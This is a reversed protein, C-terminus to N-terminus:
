HLLSIYLRKYNELGVPLDYEKIVRKVAQQGLKMRLDPSELLRSIAKLLAPADGKSILLGEQGHRIMDPIGAIRSAIVPLGAAMAELIAMPMGEANTPLVFIASSALRELKEGGSVWGEVLCYRRYGEPIFNHIFEQPVAVLRFRVHPFKEALAPVISLLLPLGKRVNDSGGLFLIELEPPNKSRKPVKRIAAQIEEVDVFNPLYKLHIGKGRIERLFAIDDLCIVIFSSAWGIIKLMLRQLLPPSDDYFFRFSFHMQLLCPIRFIRCVLTYVATEWFVWYPATHIHVLNPRHQLLFIPFQLLHKCTIVVAILSRSFGANLIANYGFNNLVNSKPPRGINFPILDFEKNLHSSFLHILLSAPGGVSPPLHAAIIIKLRENKLM